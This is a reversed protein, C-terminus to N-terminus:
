LSTSLIIVIRRGQANKNAIEWLVQQCLLPDPIHPEGYFTFKGLNLTKDIRTYLYFTFAGIYFLFLVWGPRRESPCNAAKSSPTIGAEQMSIM